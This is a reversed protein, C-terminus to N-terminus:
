EMVVEFAGLLMDKGQLRTSELLIANPPETDGLVPDGKFLIETYVPAYADHSVQLHIHRPRSYHGPLRTHLVFRGSADTRMSGTYEPRYQGNANAHRVRVTAGAIASGSRDIVRGRIELPKGPDSEHGLTLKFSEGTQGWVRLPGYALLAGAAGRILARRDLM